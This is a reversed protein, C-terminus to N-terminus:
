PQPTPGSGKCRRRLCALGMAALGALAASTGAEPIAGTEGVLISADAIDNYALDFAIGEGSSNPAFRIWGYYTAGAAVNQFAFGLYGATLSQFQDGAGGIHFQSAAEGAVYVGSSDLETGPTLNLFYNGENDGNYVDPTQSAWPRVLDSNAIAVGGLYFNIWPADNFDEFAVDHSIAGTAVNVYLGDFTVPIAENNLVLHVIEAFACSPALSLLVSTLIKKM